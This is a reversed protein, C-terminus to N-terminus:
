HCGKCFCEDGGRRANDNHHWFPQRTTLAYKLGQVEEGRGPM